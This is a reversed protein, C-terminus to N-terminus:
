QIVIRRSSVKEDAAFRVMYIGGELNSLDLQGDFGDMNVQQVKMGVLNFVEITKVADEAEFYIIGTSPNPYISIALPNQNEYIGSPDTTASGAPPTDDTKYDILAGSNTYPIIFTHYSTTEMLESFSATGVGPMVNLAGMGDSLDTDNAIPTGDEPFTFETQDSILVVYGGPIIEGIADMWSAMVTQGSASVAYATPYNSPEGIVEAEKVLVNDVEWTASEDATSTYVFAINISEDTFASLDLMGSSTFEFYSGAPPWQSQDTFDTWTFDNPNGTGDYDASVKVQLAPGTYNMASFFSFMENDYNSLDLFPSILWDENANSSGAYGSMKACPTDEIGHVDDLIWVQDGTVSYSTWNEWGDDFTTFLIDVESTQETTAQAAPVTGDTKFDIADGTNTFSFIKFYYTMEPTLGAFSASQVGSIVNLAGMGDSFDMDNDQPMGDEPLAINDQDSALVLYGQPLVEGSADTWAVSISTGSAVASFDTPYNSPEGVAGWILEAQSRATIFNGEDRSNLIGIITGAGAPIMSGIYDMDYFTTRFSGEAKSDDMIQYVSGNEFVSGADVFSVEQIKVVRAEYDEFSSLMEAVTIEIPTIQNGSSTPTGPDNVPIFQLMNEYESLTGALGSIGDGLAYETTIAGDYDDILVGAAADQIYKQGRFDQKYTLIVEGTVVFIESGGTFADRLETLNPVEIFEAFSYDAQAIASPDLGAAYARAKLTTGESINIAMTYATSAEDPDSGDLTYYIESDPTTCTIEVDFAEFYQGGPHSFVPTSVTTSGSCDSTHQGLDDWYNQDYVIWQSDDANTGAATTWDTTPDCVNAKRVLTHEGTAGSVGAVDWNEGPDPGDEGIADILIWGGLGDNKSLGVADNGNFYTLTNTIDAEALIIPDASSNAIVFVDGDELIGELPYINEDWEGGNSIRHTNYNSLDVAAGTGNYIEVYKNNSTGEAYESFFLDSAQGFINLTVLSFLALMILHQLKKM